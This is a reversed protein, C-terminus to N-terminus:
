NLIQQNLRHPEEQPRLKPKPVWIQTLPLLGSTKHPLQGLKLLFNSAQHNTLNNIKNNCRILERTIKLDLMLKLYQDTQSSPLTELMAVTLLNIRRKGMMWKNSKTAVKDMLLLHRMPNFLHPTLKNNFNCQLLLIQGKLHHLIKNNYQLLITQSGTNSNLLISNSSNSAELSTQGQRSCAQFPLYKSGLQPIKHLHTRNSSSIEKCRFSTLTEAMKIKNFTQSLSTIKSLISLLPMTTLMLHHPWQMTIVEATIIRNSAGMIQM